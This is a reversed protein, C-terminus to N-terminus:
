DTRATEPPGLYSACVGGADIIARELVVGPSVRWFKLVHRGARAIKHTSTVRRVGDAVARDWNDKTAMTGVPLVQPPEDDFTVAFRLGEGSQFDL